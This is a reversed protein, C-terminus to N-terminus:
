HEAEGAPARAVQSEQQPFVYFTSLARAVMREQQGDGPLNYVTAELVATSRGQHILTAEALLKGSRVARLYNMKAEITGTRTGPPYAALLAMAMATDALSFVAGGHVIQQPHMLREDVALSVRSHGPEAMEIQMGLLRGFGSRRTVEQLFEGTTPQHGTDEM